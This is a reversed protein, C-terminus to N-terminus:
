QTDLGWVTAIRLVVALRSPAEWAFARLREAPPGWAYPLDCITTRAPPQRLLLWGQGKPRFSVVGGDATRVRGGGATDLTVGPFGGDVGGATGAGTSAM